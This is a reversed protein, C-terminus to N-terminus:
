ASEGFYDVFLDDTEHLRVRALRWGNPTGPAGALAAAVQGFNWAAPTGAASTAPNPWDPVETYDVVQASAQRAVVLVLVSCLVPGIWRQLTM